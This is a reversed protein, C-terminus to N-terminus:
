KVKVKKLSSWKSYFKVTKGNVKVNKYTRVRVYYVKKSKLSKLVKSNTKNSKTWSNKVNKDFKKSTSYQIQCGSTEKSLKNLKVTAKKKGAKLSKIAVNKPNINFTKTYTGSYAGKFTVKVYYKGVNKRGSSYKVTYNSASIKAGKSNKAVVSPTKVKGDYTYSTASLSVSAVTVKQPKAAKELDDIAEELQARANEVESPLPFEEKLLAEAVVLAEEVASWSSVTYDEKKLNKAKAVLTELNTTDVPLPYLADFADEIALIMESLQEDVAFRNNYLEEALNLVDILNSWSEDYYDAPDLNSIRTTADSLAKRLKERLEPSAPVDMVFMLAADGNKLDENIKEINEGKDGSGSALSGKVRTLKGNDDVSITYIDDSVYDTYADDVKITLDWGADSVGVNSNITYTVVGNTGSYLKERAGGQGTVTFPVNAIPEFDHNVAIARFATEELLLPYIKNEAATVHIVIPEAEALAKGNIKVIKANEDTEFSNTDTTEWGWYQKPYVNFTCKFDFETLPHEIVGDEDSIMAYIMTPDQASETAGAVFKAGVVPDNNEDLVKARFTNEDSLVRKRKVKFVIPGAQQISKGNIKAIKPPNLYNAVVQCTDTSTYNGDDKVSVDFECGLDGYDDESVVGEGVLTYEVIGDADSPSTQRHTDYLPRDDDLSLVVGQVPRGKADVVKARFTTETSLVSDTGSGSSGGSGGEAAAVTIYAYKKNTSLNEDSAFTVKYEKETATTNPPVTVTVKSNSTSMMPSKVKEYGSVAQNNEEMKYWLYGSVPSSSAFTFGIEVDGGDSSVSYLGGQSVSDIIMGVESESAEVVGTYNGFIGLFMVFTLLWAILKNSKKM